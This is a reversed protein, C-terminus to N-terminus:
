GAVILPSPVILSDRFHAALEELRFKRLAEAPTVAPLTNVRCGRDAWILRTLVAAAARGLRAKGLISGRNM